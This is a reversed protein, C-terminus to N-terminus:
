SVAALAAHGRIDLDVTAKDTGPQNYTVGFVIGTGTRGQITATEHTYLSLTVNAGVVLLSVLDTDSYDLDSNVTARWDTHGELRSTHAQSLPKQIAEDKTENLTFSNVWLLATSSSGGLKVCGESGHLAAM